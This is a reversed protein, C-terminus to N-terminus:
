AHPRPSAAPDPEDIWDGLARTVLTWTSATTASGPLCLAACHDPNSWLLRVQLGEVEPRGSVPMWGTDQPATRQLVGPELSLGLGCAKLVAERCVWDACFAQPSPLTAPQGLGSVAEPHGSIQRWLAPDVTPPCREVDVGLPDPGIGALVLDGSHALNFHWPRPPAVSAASAMPDQGAPHALRPKGQPGAELPVAEPTCGLRQALLRRVLARGVLSRHRDDPRHLRTIWHWESAPLDRRLREAQDRDPLGRSLILQTPATRAPHHSSAAM